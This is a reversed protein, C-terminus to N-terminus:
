TTFFIQETSFKETEFPYYMLKSPTVAIAFHVWQNRKIVPGILSTGWPVNRPNRRLRLERM